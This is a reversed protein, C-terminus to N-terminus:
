KKKPAPPASGIVVGCKHTTPNIAEQVMYRAVDMKAMNMGVQDKYKEKQIYWENVPECDESIGVPRIFLYDIDSTKSSEKYAVEMDNLDKFSKKCPGKFLWNMIRGAWHFEMCPWDEQIGVSSMVVARKLHGNPTNEMAKIVQKNGASAVIGKKILEPYKWGPQRHGLCSIVATADNFYEQIKISQDNNWSDIGIVNVEAGNPHKTKSPNTHGGPCGCEWNTEDLLEPYETIVTVKQVTPQELAALIAHRGVDSLGGIGYLVVLSVGRATGAASLPTM